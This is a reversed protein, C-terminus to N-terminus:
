AEELLDAGTYVDVPGCAEVARRPDGKVFVLVTQHCKGLRRTATFQRGVMIKVAGIPSMYAAENHYSAGADAFAEITDAVFGRYHGSRKDRVEGVVWVAFRDPALRDVAQAIVQRYGRLFDAYPMNSLDAPHDSYRELDAYPPCSFLLDYAQPQGTLRADLYRSDGAVWRPWPPAVADTPTGGHKTADNDVLMQWTGPLTTATLDGGGADLHDVIRQAEAQGFILDLSARFAVYVPLQTGDPRTDKYCRLLRYRNRVVLTGNSNLTLPSAICGFPKDPTDHLQCLHDDTGEFPCSRDARPLLLGDEVVGGRAEIAAAESRHITVMTGTPSSSSHCCAAHCVDRIYNPECGHFTQRLSAASVKVQRPAFTDGLLPMIDAAQAENAAVQDPSLDVGVYHRGLAAAVIGRVSGGAFPDLVLAGPPSFWRYALECLVPDFVSVGGTGGITSTPVTVLYDREFEANTLPHGVAAEAARRQEYYDVVQAAVGKIAPGTRGVESRFGLTAWRRKREQWPGSRGDLVTFPPVIFREALPPNAPPPPPEDAPAQGLEALLADLDSATFGPPMDLARDQIDTLQAALGETDWGGAETLRNAALVYARAEDDDASAWGRVVPVTWTGDALQALGEPLEDQRDPDDRWAALQDIRGHGAVLRGTREDLEIPDTFGFREISRAIGPGDHRKVNSPEVRALLDDLPVYELRRPVDTVGEGM